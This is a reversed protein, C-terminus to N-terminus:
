ESLSELLKPLAKRKIETTARHIVEQIIYDKEAYVIERTAKAIENKFMHRETTYQTTIKRAILDTILKKLEEEDIQIKIEM